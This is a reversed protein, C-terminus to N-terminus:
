YSPIFNGALSNRKKDYENRNKILIKFRMEIINSVIETTLGLDNFKTTIQQGAVLIKTIRLLKEMGLKSLEDPMSRSMNNMLLLSLPEVRNKTFNSFPRLFKSEQKLILIALQNM